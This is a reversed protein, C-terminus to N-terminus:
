RANQSSPAPLNLKRLLRLFRPDDRLPVFQQQQLNLALHKNRQEYMRDLLAFAEDRRGLRTYIAAAHSISDPHGSAALLPAIAAMTDPNGSMARVGAVSGISRMVGQAEPYRGQAWYARSLMFRADTRRPELENAEQYRAIAEDLRGALQAMLGRNLLVVFSEPQIERAREVEAAAEDHRGQAALENARRLHASVYRPNLRIARQLASDAEAWRYEYNALVYALATYGEPLSSDLSIARLAAAKARVPDDAHNYVDAMGAYAPAFSSDREAAENFLELARRHIAPDFQGQTLVYRGQAYLDRAEDPRTRPGGESVRRIDGLAVTTRREDPSTPVKGVSAARRVLLLAAATLSVTAPVIVYRRTLHRARPVRTAAAGTPARASPPDASHTPAARKSRPENGAVRTSSRTRVSDVLEVVAPDSALRLDDRVRTQHNQAHRLAGAVDGCADLARVARLAVRSNYPDHAALRRWEEAASAWEGASEHGTALQEVCWAFRRALRDREREVWREFEPADAIFFGDLFPGRYLAVAEALEGAGALEEFQAVDSAIVDPNVRVDDGTALLAGKGLSKRLTFVSDALFHRARERDDEPWFFAVLKDRSLGNPSSALLALLALRRRQAPPGTVPEGSSLLACGGFLQLTFM